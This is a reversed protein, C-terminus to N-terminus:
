YKSTLTHKMEYTHRQFLSQIKFRSVYTVYAINALISLCLKCFICAWTLFLSAHIEWPNLKGAKAPIKAEM